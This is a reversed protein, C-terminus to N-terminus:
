RAAAEAAEPTPMPPTCSFGAGPFQKDFRVDESLVFKRPPGSLSAVPLKSKNAAMADQPAYEDLLKQLREANGKQSRLLNDVVQAVATSKRTSKVTDHLDRLFSPGKGGGYTVNSVTARYARRFPYLTGEFHLWESPKSWERLYGEFAYYGPSTGLGLKNFYFEIPSLDGKGRFRGEARVSIAASVAAAAIELSERVADPLPLTELRDVVRDIRASISTPLPM